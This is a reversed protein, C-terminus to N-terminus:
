NGELGPLIGNEIKQQGESTSDKVLMVHQVQGVGINHLDALDADGESWFVHKSQHIVMGYALIPVWLHQETAFEHMKSSKHATNLFEIQEGDISVVAPAHSLQNGRGASWKEQATELDSRFKALFDENKDSGDPYIVDVYVVGSGFGALGMSANGLARSVARFIKLANALDRSSSRAYHDFLSIACPIGITRKM